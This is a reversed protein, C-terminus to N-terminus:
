IEVFAMTPQRSVWDDIGMWCVIVPPILLKFMNKDNTQKNTQETKETTPLVSEM